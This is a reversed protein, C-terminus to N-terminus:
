ERPKIAVMLISYDRWDLDTLREFVVQFGAATAVRSCDGLSPEPAWHSCTPTQGLEITKKWRAVEPVIIVMYGEPKLVRKWERFLKQWTPQNAPYEKGDCNDRPFDEILHSSYVYDLTNDKFPLDMIDGPWEVHDPLDRGTYEKFKNKPLEVQIASPVVPWSGSGCDVGRGELYQRTLHLYKASESM